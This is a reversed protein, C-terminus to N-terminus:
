IEMMKNVIGRSDMDSSAAIINAAVGAVFANAFSSGISDMFRDGVTMTDYTWNHMTIKIGDASPSKVEGVAVSIVGSASSPFAYSRTDSVASFILIEKALLKKIVESALHEEESSTLSCVVIDCRSAMCWLLGGVLASIDGSRDSKACKAHFFTAEHCLGPIGSAHSSSLIGSVSTGHGDRDYPEEGNVMSVQRSQNNLKIDRHTPAGTDVIGIKLGSCDTREVRFGGHAPLVVQRVRPSIRLRGDPPSDGLVM